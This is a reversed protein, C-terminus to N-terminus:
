LPIDSYGSKCNIVDTILIRIFVRFLARVLHSSSIENSKGLKYYIGDLGHVCTIAFPSTFNQMVCYASITPSHSRAVLLMVLLQTKVTARLFSIGALMNYCAMITGCALSMEPNGHIEKKKFSIRGM